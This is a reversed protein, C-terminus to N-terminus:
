VINVYRYIYIEWFMGEKVQISLDLDYFWDKWTTFCLTLCILMSFLLVHKYCWYAIRIGHCWDKRSWWSIPCQTLCWSIPCQTLCVVFLFAVFNASRNPFPFPQFFPFEFHCNLPANSGVKKGKHRQRFETIICDVPAFLARKCDLDTNWVCVCVCVCVCM